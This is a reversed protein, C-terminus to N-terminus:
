LSPTFLLCLVYTLRGCDILCTHIKMDFQCSWLGLNLTPLPLIM